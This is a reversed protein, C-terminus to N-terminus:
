YKKNKKTDKFGSAERMLKKREKVEDWKYGNARALMARIYFSFMYAPYKKSLDSEDTLLLKCLDRADKTDLNLFTKMEMSDLVNRGLINHGAIYGTVFASDVTLRNKMIDKCGTVIVNENAIALSSFISVALIMKIIIKM